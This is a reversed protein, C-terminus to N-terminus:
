LYVIANRPMNYSNCIGYSVAVDFNGVPTIGYIPFIEDRFYKSNKNKTHIYLNATQTTYFISTIFSFMQNQMYM